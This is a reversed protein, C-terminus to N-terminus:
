SRDCSRDCSRDRSRRDCWRRHRHCRRRDCPPRDCCSPCPETAARRAPSPAPSPARVPRARCPASPSPPPATARPSTSRAVARACGRSPRADARERSLRERAGARPRLERRRRRAARPRLEGGLTRHRAQLRRLQRGPAPGPARRPGRGRRPDRVGAGAAGRARAARAHLARWRRQARRGLRLHLRTRETAGALAEAPFVDDFTATAYTAYQLYRAKLPPVSRILEDRLALPWRASGSYTALVQEAFGNGDFDKVHMTAPRTASATLRTNLGLNGVVFDVRGDGTVDAAVIRNWWGDSQALGPVELRALRGGGANRFVAIPMWEGVVVLDARGDGDADQWVADTVMGVRALEPAVRETVDTFRGRGDNQLLLSRPSEGYKWPVVRGGVFLDVDGDGDYDAAAVHSGSADEAPLQDTARRFTGRGDNVYLRDQLAPAGESYESGGSVVYLDLDRDGDVDAFVAGVDESIADEALLAANTPAFGGSGRQVLLQGAHEKAGGLYLDDLGDGDVDGVALAPGETSVLKPILRERDFDVADNEV